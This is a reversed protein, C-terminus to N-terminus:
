NAKGPWRLSKFLSVTVHSNHGDLILLREDSEDALKTELLYVEKAMETRHPQRDLREFLHYISSKPQWRLVASM